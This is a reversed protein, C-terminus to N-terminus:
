KTERGWPWSWGRDPCMEQYPNTPRTPPPPPPAFPDSPLPITGPHATEIPRTAYMEIWGMLMERSQEELRLTYDSPSIAARVADSQITRMQAYLERRWTETDWKSPDSMGSERPQTM